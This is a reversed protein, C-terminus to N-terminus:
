AYSPLTACEQSYTAESPIDQLQLNTSFPGQSDAHTHTHSVWEETNKRSHPKSHRWMSTQWALVAETHDEGHPSDPALEDEADFYM